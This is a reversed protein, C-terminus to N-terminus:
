GPGIEASPVMCVVPFAVSGPTDTEDERPDGPLRDLGSCPLHSEMWAVPHAAPWSSGIESAVTSGFSTRGHNLRQLRQHALLKATPDAPCAEPSGVQGRGGLYGLHGERGRGRVTHGLAAGRWHLGATPSWEPIDPSQGCVWSKRPSGGSSFPRRTRIIRLGRMGQLSLVLVPAPSPVAVVAM